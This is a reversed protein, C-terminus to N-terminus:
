ETIAHQCGNHPVSLPTPLDRIDKPRNSQHRTCCKCQQYRKFLHEATRQSIRTSMLCWYCMDPNDEGPHVDWDVLELMDADYENGSYGCEVARCLDRMRSRCMCGCEYKSNMKFHDLKLGM